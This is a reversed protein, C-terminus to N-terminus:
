FNRMGYNDVIYIKRSNADGADNANLFLAFVGWFQLM